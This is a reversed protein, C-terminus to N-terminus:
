VCSLSQMWWEQSELHLFLDHMLFYLLSYFRPLARLKIPVFFPFTLGVVVLFQIRHVHILLLWIRGWLRCFACGQWCRSELRAPDTDTKQGVFSYTLLNSPKLSSFESLKNCCCFVVFEPQKLCPPQPFGGQASVQLFIQPFLKGPQLSHDHLSLLKSFYSSCCPPCHPQLSVLATSDSIAPSALSWSM